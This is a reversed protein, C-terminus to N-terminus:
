KGFAGGSGEAPLDAPAGVVRSAPRPLDRGTARPIKEAEAVVPVLVNLLRIVCFVRILNLRPADRTRVFAAPDFDSRDGVNLVYLHSRRCLRHRGLCIRRPLRKFTTHSSHLRRLRRHRMLHNIQRRSNISADRSRRRRTSLDSTGSRCRRRTLRISSPQRQLTPEGSPSRRNSRRLPYLLHLNPARQM